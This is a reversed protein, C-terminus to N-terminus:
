ELLRLDDQVECLRNQVAGGYLLYKLVAVSAAVPMPQRWLLRTGRTPQEERRTQALHLLRRIPLDKSKVWVSAKSLTAM